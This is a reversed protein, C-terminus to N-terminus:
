GIVFKISDEVFKGSNVDTITVHVSYEGLPTSASTSFDYKAPANYYGLSTVAVYEELIVGSVSNIRNGSPNFVEQEYIYDIKYDDSAVLNRIDLLLWFEDGRSFINRSNVCGADDDVDECFYLRLSLERSVSESTQPASCSVLITSVLFVFLVINIKKM